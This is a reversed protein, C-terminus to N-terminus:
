EVVSHCFCIIFLLGFGIRLWHVNLHISVALCSQGFNQNNLQSSLPANNNRDTNGTLVPNKLGFGAHIIEVKDGNEVDTPQPNNEATIQPNRVGRRGHLNDPLQQQQRPSSSTTMAVSLPEMKEGGPHLKENLEMKSALSGIGSVSISSQHRLVSVSTAVPKLTTLRFDPPPTTIVDDTAMSVVNSSRDTTVDCGSTVDSLLASHGYGTDPSLDFMVPSWQAVPTSSTVHGSIFDPSSTMPAPRTMHGSGRALEEVSSFISTSLKRVTSSQLLADASSSLRQLRLSEDTTVHRRQPSIAASCRRDDDFDSDSTLSQSTPSANEKVNCDDAVIVYLWATM